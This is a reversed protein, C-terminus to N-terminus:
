NKYEDLLNEYVNEYQSCISSMSHKKALELSKAKMDKQLKKDSLIKIMHSAMQKSNKPEFLYGNGSNALEPLAGKNVLVVPLGSSIAEMTVISQLEAEAPMVFLDALSYINPYDKWDLFNIFTTHKSIGLSEALDIMQRKYSGGSGCFLFHADIKKLVHPIANILVDLNKEQNIRGTYLVINKKPVNFRKRLYNGDNNTNFVETDVGNSIPTIKTKLGRKIYMDAGSQTPITAWNVLNFFYVLYSWSYKRITEYHKYNMFPSLMNEPLIHISGVIPIKYKRACIITSIGIPYPSCVDVVDPKFDKIIKKVQFLPFPSFHYSNNMYFPLVLGRARFITSGNDQEISKKYSLGPAIVGVEHDKKTLEHVLRRQAIAGGDINPYYSETAFLIRM